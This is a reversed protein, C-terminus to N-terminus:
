IHHAIGKQLMLLFAFLEAGASSARKSEWLVNKKNQPRVILSKDVVKWRLASMCGICEKLRLFLM